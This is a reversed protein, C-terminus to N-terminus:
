RFSRECKKSIKDSLLLAVLDREKKRYDRLGVQM